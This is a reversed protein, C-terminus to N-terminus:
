CRQVLRHLGVNASRWVVAPALPLLLCVRVLRNPTEAGPSNSKRTPDVRRRKGRKCSLGTHSPASPAGQTQAVTRLAAVKRKSRPKTDGKSQLSITPCDISRHDSDLSKCNRCYHVMYQEHCEPVRCLERSGSGSGPTCAAAGNLLSAYTSRSSGPSQGASLKGGQVCGAEGKVKVKRKLSLKKKREQKKGPQLPHSAASSITM